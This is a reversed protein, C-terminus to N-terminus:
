DKQNHKFFVFMETETQTSVGNVAGEIERPSKRGVGILSHALVQFTPVRHIRKYSEM